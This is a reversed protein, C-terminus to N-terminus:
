RAGGDQYYLIEAQCPLFILLEETNSFIVRCGPRKPYYDKLQRLIEPSVPVELRHPRQIGLEELQANRVVREMAM